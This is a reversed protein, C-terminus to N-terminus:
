GHLLINNSATAAVSDLSFLMESLLAHLDPMCQSSLTALGWEKAVKMTVKAFNAIAEQKEPRCGRSVQFPARCKGRCHVWAQPVHPHPLCPPVYFADQGYYAPAPRKKTLDPRVIYDSWM